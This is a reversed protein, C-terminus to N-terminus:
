LLPGNKKESSPAVCLRIWRVLACVIEESVCHPLVLALLM